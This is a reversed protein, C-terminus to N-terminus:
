DIKTWYGIGPTTVNKNLTSCWTKTDYTVRDGMSYGDIECIPKSWEPALENSVGVKEWYRAAREPTFHERATHNSLCRYLAGNYKRFEGQTYAETEHWPSFIEMHEAITQADLEGREAMKVFIINAASEIQAARARLKENERQLAQIREQQGFIRM